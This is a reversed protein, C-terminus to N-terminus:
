GILAAPDPMTDPGGLLGFEADYRARFPLTLAFLGESVEELAGAGRLERLHQDYIQVTFPQLSRFTERRPHRAHEALRESANEWPVVVPWTADPILRFEEATTAFNLGARQAQIGRQDLDVAGFLLRFYEDTTGPDGLMLGEPYRALMAVTAELGRRLIGAPPETAARFIEFRGLAPKGTTDRLAGERNCRGAAQVLSDLGALARFVVPFDVDVGAEVLQTTVVRCPRKALLAARVRGLVEIRHAPCMLASLHHRDATPLLGALDSADRRRHVIALVQPECRMREALEELSTPPDGPRPWRVRIRTLARALKVPDTAIERVDELGSPMAARRSLAPQTATSLVVTCGYRAVLERLSDLVPLLFGAPLAQAEDLIIVSRTLNHLKRCRSPRNAFLSEFLQVNTTVIVPADWNEAALRRLTEAEGDHERLAAEDLNSHHEVVRDPGLIDRYVAANQEIISTFPIAVVVRRLGHLAAHRLAFAMSSLTKGGGTPVTLSFFGPVQAAARVCDDLVARRIVNVESNTTFTALKQDLLDALEKIDHREPRAAHREPSRFRETALYDADVLASFIMRTWFELARRGAEQAHRSAGSPIMAWRPLGVAPRNDVLDPPILPLVEALPARNAEIRDALPLGSGSRTTPNALGAHHGAIAFALPILGHQRALAAGIGAHEVQERSGRIRRQFEPRYKGLDHWLGALRGWEAAEFAGAFEAALAAVEHLHVELREWREVPEGPRSHAFSVGDSNVLSVTASRDAIHPKGRRHRSVHSM